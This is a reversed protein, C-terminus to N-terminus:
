LISLLLTYMIDQWLLSGQAEMSPCIKLEFPDGSDELESESHTSLSFADGSVQEAELESYSLTVLVLQLGDRQYAITTSASMNTFCCRQRFSIVIDATIADWVEM